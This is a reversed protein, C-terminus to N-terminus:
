YKLSKRITYEGANGGTESAQRQLTIHSHMQQGSYTFKFKTGPLTGNTLDFDLIPTQKSKTETFLLEGKANHSLVINKQKAMEYLYDKIEPIRQKLHQPFPMM